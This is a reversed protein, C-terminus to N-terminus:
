DGAPDDLGWKMEYKVKYGAKFEKVNKDSNEQTVPMSSKISPHDYQAKLELCLHPPNEEDFSQPFTIATCEYEIITKDNEQKVVGDEGYKVDLMKIDGESEPVGEVTGALLNVRAQLLVNELSVIVRDFADEEYPIQLKVSIRTYAHKFSISTTPSPNESTPVDRFPNDKPLGILLDNEFVAEGQTQDNEMSLVQGGSLIEEDFDDRYPAYAVVAVKSERSLPYYLTEDEVVISKDGQVQACVNCYGYSWQLPEDSVARAYDADDIIFLGVDEGVTIREEMVDSELARTKMESVQVAVDGAVSFRMPVRQEPVIGQEEMEWGEACSGLLLPMVCMAYLVINKIKNM